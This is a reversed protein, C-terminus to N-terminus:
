QLMEPSKSVIFSLKEKTKYVSVYKLQTIHPLPIVLTDNSKKMIVFFWKKELRAPFFFWYNLDSDTSEDTKLFVLDGAVNNRSKLLSDTSTFVVASDNFCCRFQIFHGSLQNEKKDNQCFSSKVLIMCVLSFSITYFSRIM